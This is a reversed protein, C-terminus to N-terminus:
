AAALLQLDRARIRTATVTGFSGGLGFPDNVVVTGDARLMMNEKHLDVSRGAFAIRWENIFRVADPGLWRNHAEPVEIAELSPRPVKFLGGLMEALWLAAHLQTRQEETVEYACDISQVTCALREVVAVYNGDKSFRLSHVRPALGGMFGNRAAWVIYDPWADAPRTAESDTRTNIKVVKESGARALVSSFYGSGITHFRKRSLFQKFKTTSQM